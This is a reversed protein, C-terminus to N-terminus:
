EMAAIWISPRRCRNRTIDSSTSTAGPSDDAALRAMALQLTHIQTGRM